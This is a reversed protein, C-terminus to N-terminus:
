VSPIASQRNRRNMDWTGDFASCQEISEVTTRPISELIGRFPQGINQVTM